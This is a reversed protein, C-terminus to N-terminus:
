KINEVDVRMDLYFHALEKIIVFLELGYKNFTLLNKSKNGSQFQKITGESIKRSIFIEKFLTLM